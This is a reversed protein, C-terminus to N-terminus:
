RIVVERIVERGLHENMITRIRSKAMLFEEKMPASDLEIVMVGDRVRIFRTKRSVAEGMVEKWAAEARVDEMRAGHGSVRLWETLAEGLSVAEGKRSSRGARRIGQRSGSKM